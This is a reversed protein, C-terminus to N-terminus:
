AEAPFQRVLKHLDEHRIVRELQFGTRGEHSWILFADMRGVLPLRVELREGRELALEGRAMFGHASINQINLKTEGLRRHEATVVLDISLRSAWRMEYTSPRARRNLQNVEGM